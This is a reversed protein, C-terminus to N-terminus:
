GHSPRHHCPTNQPTRHDQHRPKLQPRGAGQPSADQAVATSLHHLFLFVPIIEDIIFVSPLFLQILLETGILLVSVLCIVKIDRCLMGNLPFCVM